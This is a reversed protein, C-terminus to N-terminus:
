ARTFFDTDISSLLATVEHALPKSMRPPENGSLLTYCILCYGRGNSFVVAREGVPEDRGCKCCRFTMDTM